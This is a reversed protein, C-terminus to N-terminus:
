CPGRAEKRPASDQARAREIVRPPVIVPSGRADSSCRWRWGPLVVGIVAQLSPSAASSQLQRHKAKVVLTRRTQVPHLFRSIARVVVVTAAIVVRPRHGEYERQGVSRGVFGSTARRFRQSSALSFRCVWWGSHKRPILARYSAPSQGSRVSLGTPSFYGLRRGPPGTWWCQPSRTATSPFPRRIQIRRRLPRYDLQADILGRSRAVLHCFEGAATWRRGGSRVQAAYRPAPRSAGAECGRGTAASRRRRLAACDLGGDKCRRQGGDARTSRTTTKHRLDLPSPPRRSPSARGTSSTYASAPFTGAWSSGEAIMKATGTTRPSTRSGQGWGVFDDSNALKSITKARSSPSGLRRSLEHEV